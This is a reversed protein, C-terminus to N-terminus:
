IYSRKRKWCLFWLQLVEYGTLHFSEYIGTAKNLTAICLCLYVCVDIYVFFINAKKM